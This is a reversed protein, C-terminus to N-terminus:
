FSFSLHRSYNSLCYNLRHYNLCTIMLVYFSKHSPDVISHFLEIALSYFPGFLVLASWIIKLTKSKSLRDNFM